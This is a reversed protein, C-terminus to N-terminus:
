IDLSHEKDFIGDDNRTLGSMRDRMTEWEEEPRRHEDMDNDDGNDPLTYSLAAEDVFTFGQFNAQMSPSLPTSNAMGSVLAAARANLSSSDFPGSFEPDFNIVDDRPKLKPKFPPPTLKRALADWDTNSFFIHRKLEEADDTAGLRHKPNRNLLGKVFARGEATLADRPFRVKGFAINKYMQQTDEAYFPSWGCCMEFMIVGLSWFDVMRSYGTEDLLVEPALYETTGCFSTTTDDKVLNAKSLSFDSLAIHGNADLLINEPKLDRYIIGHSHLHQLALILEAVYFKTREENFRGENQLHWFLEGGDMYDTVLYLDSPTQFAFKLGVIFPSDTIAARVLINREGIIHAVEKKRLVIKKAIVKMAYVRKTDKKRVRYVQGSTGKGILRLIEFDAPSWHKKEIQQFNIEVNIEGWLGGEIDSRGNLQFWGSLSNNTETLHAEIDAHGLFNDKSNERGYITISVQPDSNVVDFVTEINWSFQGSSQNGEADFDQHDSLSIVSSQRRQTIEVLQDSPIHPTPITIDQDKALPDTSIFENHQFVVVIYVESSKRLGREGIIKVFLKGKPTPIPARAESLGRKEM